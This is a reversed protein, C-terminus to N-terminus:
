LPRATRYAHGVPLLSQIGFAWAAYGVHRTKQDTTMEGAGFLLSSLVGGFLSGVAPSNVSGIRMRTTGTNITGVTTEPEDIGNVQLRLVGGARIEAVIVSLGNFPVVSGTLSGTETTLYGRNTSTSSVIIDRRAVGRNNTNSGYSWIFGNDTISDSGAQQDVVGVFWGPAAGIPLDVPVRGGDLNVDFNDNVRDFTFGPYAGNFATAGYTPKANAASQRAVYGLMVDRWFGDGITDARRADWWLRAQPDSFPSFGVEQLATNGTVDPLSIILTM